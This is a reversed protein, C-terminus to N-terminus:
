ATLIDVGTETVRVTHEWQASLSGDATVVTWGDSLTECEYGGANVMPEITFVMNPRLRVGKNRQGYHLVQPPEWFALGTGHGCLARVVSYGHREAHQQIAYGIDGLTNGPRVQKVGLYLCEKTVEILRLAEQSAEGVVFMRSIDGYYGNLVPTVDVNIIDGDKLVTEDPIGHCIVNNISTCCSKNFGEVNLTAPYGRHATIYEYVGRDIDNTTVGARIRKALMDLTERALQCSKRIGEIQKETKIIIKSTRMRPQNTM